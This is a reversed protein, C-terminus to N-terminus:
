ASILAYGVALQLYRKISGNGPPAPPAWCSLKLGSVVQGNYIKPLSFARSAKFYPGPNPKSEKSLLVFFDDGDIM